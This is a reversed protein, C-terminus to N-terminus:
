ETAFLSDNCNMAMGDSSFSRCISASAAFWLLAFGPVGIACQCVFSGRRGPSGHQAELGADLRLPALARCDASPTYVACSQRCGRSCRWCGAM